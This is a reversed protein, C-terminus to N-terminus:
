RMPLRFPLTQTEKDSKTSKQKSTDSRCWFKISSERSLASSCNVRRKYSSSSAARLRTPSVIKILEVPEPPIFCCSDCRAMTCTHLTITSETRKLREELDRIEGKKWHLQLAARFSKWGTNSGKQLRLQSVTELLKVCDEKCLTSLNGFSAAGSSSIYVSASRLSTEISANLEHLHGYLTELELVKATYGVSSKRLESSDKMLQSTFQIFQVINGALGLAALTEMTATARNAISKCNPISVLCRGRFDCLHFPLWSTPPTSPHLHLFRPQCVV